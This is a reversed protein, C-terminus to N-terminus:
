KLTKYNLEKFNTQLMLKEQDLRTAIRPSERELPRPNLDRCRISSPCSMKLMSKNYFNYQKNSFVLFLRFLPRTQGM